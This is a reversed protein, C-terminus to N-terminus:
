SGGLAPGSRESPTAEMPPLLSHLEASFEADILIFAM